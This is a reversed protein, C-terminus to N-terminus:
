VRYTLNQGCNRRLTYNLIHRIGSYFTPLNREKDLHFVKLGGLSFDAWLVHLLGLTVVGLASFLLYKKGSM